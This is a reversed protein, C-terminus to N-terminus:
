SKEHTPTASGDGHSLGANALIARHADVKDRVDGAISYHWETEDGVRWGPFASDVGRWCLGRAQLWELTDASRCLDRYEHETITIKEM